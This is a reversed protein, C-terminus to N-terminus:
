VRPRRDATESQTGESRAEFFECVQHEFTLLGSRPSRPNVCVGWDYGWKGPLKLFHHCGYSCDLGAGLRKGYPEVDTPLHRCVTILLDHMTEGVGDLVFAADETQLSMLSDQTFSAERTQSGM